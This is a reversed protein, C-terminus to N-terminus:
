LNGKREREIRKCWWCNAQYGHGQHTTCAAKKSPPAIRSRESEHRELARHMEEAERSHGASRLRKVNEVGDTM